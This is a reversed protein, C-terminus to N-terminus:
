DLPCQVGGDTGIYNACSGLNVKTLFLVGVRLIQDRIVSYCHSAGSGMM